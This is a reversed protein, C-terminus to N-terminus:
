SIGFTQRHRIPLALLALVNGDHSPYDSTVETSPLELKLNPAANCQNCDASTTRIMIHPSHSLQAKHGAM